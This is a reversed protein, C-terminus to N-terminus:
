GARDLAREYFWFPRTNPAQEEAQYQAGAAQWDGCDRCLTPLEAWRHERHVRRLREGLILWLERITKEGVKGVNLRGEYDCACAVMSGDAQIAGTNNGWPCAIRFDSGHTIEPAHVIGTAGWELKPRVKVEVGLAHWHAVFAELEHANEDMVSFQAVIVPYQQGREVQKRRLEAVSGFIEDRKGNVRIREFTDRTFGDLSLIFRKLPSGLIKEIHDFRNLLIGNSNLVLNCCGVRAAYDLRDWLEDRLILAEGYFTPWLECDPMERAVEEVIRDWLVREMHQKPRILLRHACHVCKMNCYSTNEVILQPPFAHERLGAEIALLEQRRQPSELHKEMFLIPEM